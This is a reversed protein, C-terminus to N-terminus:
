GSLIGSCPSDGNGRPPSIHTEQAESHSSIADRSQSCNARHLFKVSAQARLSRLWAAPKSARALRPRIPDLSPQPTVQGWLLAWIRHHPKGQLRYCGCRLSKGEVKSGETNSGGSFMEPPTAPEEPCRVHALRARCRRRGRCRADAPWRRGATARTSAAQEHTGTERVRGHATPRDRPRSQQYQVFCGRTQKRAGNAAELLAHGWSKLLTGKETGCPLAKLKVNGLGPSPPLDPTKAQASVGQCRVPNCM